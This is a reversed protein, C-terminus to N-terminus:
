TDVQSAVSDTKMRLVNLFHEASATCKKHYHANSHAKFKELANQWKTYPSTVLSGISELRGKGVIETCVAVCYKCFAGSLIKFLLAM